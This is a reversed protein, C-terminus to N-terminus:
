VNFTDSDIKDSRMGRLSMITNAYLQWTYNPFIRMAEMMFEQPTYARLHQTKGRTLVSKDNVDFSFLPTSLHIRDPWVDTWRLADIALDLPNHLHEIIENAIVITPSHNRVDKRIGLEALLPYAQSQTKRDLGVDWYTFKCDNKYLGFPIIYEGPGIDVIHPELGQANYKKVEEMILKTRVTFTMLDKAIEVFPALDGDFESTMYAHPTTMSAVLKARYDLLEKPKTERYKAPVNDLVWIAREVEDHNALMQAYDIVQQAKFLENEMIDQM